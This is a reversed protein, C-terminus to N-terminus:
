HEKGADTPLWKGGDPAILWERSSCDQCGCTCLFLPLVQEPTREPRIVCREAVVIHHHHFLWRRDPFREAHGLSSHEMGPWLHVSPGAHFSHTHLNRVGQFITWVGDADCWHPSLQCTVIPLTMLFTSYLNLLMKILWQMAEFSLNPFFGSM